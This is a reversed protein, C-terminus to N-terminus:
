LMFILTREARSILLAAGALLAGAAGLSVLYDDLAPLTGNLMPARVLNLLHHVPNM